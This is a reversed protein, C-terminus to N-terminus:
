RNFQWSSDELNQLDKNQFKDPNLTINKAWCVNLFNKVMVDVEKDDRAEGLTDDVTKLNKVNKVKCLMKTELKWQIEFIHYVSVKNRHIIVIAM